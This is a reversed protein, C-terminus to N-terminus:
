VIEVLKLEFILDQGALPHNADVTIGEGSVDIVTVIMDDRGSASARFKQGVVPDTETPFESRDIEVVLENRFPGCAENAPITETKHEGPSMGVVVDELGAILTNSGITFELPDQGESSGFEAGDRLKGTYHVRVIDSKKSCAM